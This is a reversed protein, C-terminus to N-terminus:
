RATENRWMRRDMLEDDLYIAYEFFEIRELDLLETVQMQNLFCDDCIINFEHYEDYRYCGFTFIGDTYSEFNMNYDIISNLNLERVIEQYEESKKFM